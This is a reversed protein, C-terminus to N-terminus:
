QRKSRLPFFLIHAIDNQVVAEKFEFFDDNLYCVMKVNLQEKEVVAPM